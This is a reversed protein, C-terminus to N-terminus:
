HSAERRARTGQEVLRGRAEATMECDEHRIFYLRGKLGEVELEIQHAYELEDSRVVKLCVVCIWDDETV